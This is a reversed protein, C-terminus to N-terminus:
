AIVKEVAFNVAETFIFKALEKPIQASNKQFHKDNFVKTM